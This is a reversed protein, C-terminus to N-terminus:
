DLTKHPAVEVQEKDLFFPSSLNLVWRSWVEAAAEM